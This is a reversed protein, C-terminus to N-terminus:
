AASIHSRRTDAIVMSARCAALVRATAASVGDGCSMCYMTMTTTAEDLTVTLPQACVRCWRHRTVPNIHIPSAVCSHIWRRHVHCTLRDDPSLQGLEEATDEFALWEALRTDTLERRRGRDFQPIATLVSPVATGM